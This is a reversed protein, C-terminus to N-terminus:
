VLQQQTKFMEKGSERSRGALFNDTTAAVGEASRMKDDKIERVTVYIEKLMMRMEEMSETPQQSRTTVKATVIKTATKDSTGDCDKDEACGIMYNYGKTLIYYSGAMYFHDFLKKLASRHQKESM